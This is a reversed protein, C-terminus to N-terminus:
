ATIHLYFLNLVHVTETRFISVIQKRQRGRLALFHLSMYLSVTM